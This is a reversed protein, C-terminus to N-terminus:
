QRHRLTKSFDPNRFTTILSGDASVVVATGQARDALQPAIGQPLQRRGLADDARIDPTPSFLFHIAFKEYFYLNAM